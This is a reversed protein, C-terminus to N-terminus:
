STVGVAGQVSRTQWEVVEAFNIGIYGVFVGRDIFLM